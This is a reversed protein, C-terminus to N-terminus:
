LNGLLHLKAKISSILMKDVDATKEISQVTVRDKSAFLEKRRALEDLRNVTSKVKKKDRSTLSGRRMNVEMLEELKRVEEESGIDEEHKERRKEELYWVGKGEKPTKAPPIMPNPKFKHPKWNKSECSENETRIKGKFGKKKGSNKHTKEDPYMLSRYSSRPFIEKVLESYKAKKELLKKKEDLKKLREYEQKQEEEQLKLAWISEKVSISRVESDLARSSLEKQIKQASSEKVSKYWEEHKKLQSNEIPSFYLSRKKLEEKRKIYEPMECNIRFHEELKVFLPKQELFNPSSIQSSKISEIEKTTQNRKTRFKELEEKRQKEKLLEKEQIIKLENEELKKAKKLVKESQLRLYRESQKRLESFRKIEDAYIVAQQKISSKPLKNQPKQKPTALQNLTQLEEISQSVCLLKSKLESEIKEAAKLQKKRVEAEILDLKSPKMTLILGAFSTLRVPHDSYFIKLKENVSRLTADINSKYSSPIKCKEFQGSFYDSLAQKM